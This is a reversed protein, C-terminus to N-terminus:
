HGRKEGPMVPGGVAPNHNKLIAMVEAFAREHVQDLKSFFEPGHPRVRTKSENWVLAHTVEHMVLLGLYELGPSADYRDHIARRYSGDNRFQTELCQEGFQILRKGHDYYTAWVGSRYRLRVGRCGFRSLLYKAAHFIELLSTQHQDSPFVCSVADKHGVLWYDEPNLDGAGLNERVSSADDRRENIQEEWCQSLRSSFSRAEEALRAANEAAMAAHIFLCKCVQGKDKARLRGLLVRAQRVHGLCEKAIREVSPTSKLYANIEAALERVSWKEEIAAKEFRLRDWEHELRTLEAYHSFSLKGHTPFNPFLRAMKWCKYLTSQKAKIRDDEALSKIWKEGYGARRGAVYQHILVGIQFYNRGRSELHKNIEAVLCSVAGSTIERGVRVSMGGTGNESETIVTTGKQSAAVASPRRMSGEREANEM